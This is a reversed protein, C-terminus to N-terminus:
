ILGKRWYDRETHGDPFTYETYMTGDPAQVTEERIIGQSTRTELTVANIRRTNAGPRHRRSRSLLRLLELLHHHLDSVNPMGEGTATPGMVVVITTGTGMAGPEATTRATGREQGISVDDVKFKTAVKITAAGNGADEAREKDLKHAIESGTIWHGVSSVARRTPQAGGVASRLTIDNQPGPTADM